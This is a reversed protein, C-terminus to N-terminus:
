QYMSRVRPDIFGYLLDVVLNVISFGVSLVVICGLVVPVDRGNVAQVVLRGLGPWAFVTETLVAGGLLGGLQVGVITVTPILANRFSHHFIVERETIGKSRATRIYDQRITELMSSRTTRAIAAMQMFGIAISPLVYSKWGDKAGQAPLWGLKLSFLLMLMLALWFAPMSIGILSVVMSSHDFLTNQKIAALIGLPIAIVISVVAAVAALKFTAPVRSFVEDAVPRKNVYSTGMDGQVLNVLYRGYQVLVNDNLGMEDRM